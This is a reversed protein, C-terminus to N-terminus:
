HQEPFLLFARTLPALELIDGFIDSNRGPADWGMMEASVLCRGQALADLGFRIWRLSNDFLPEALVEHPYKRNAKVTRTAFLDPDKLSGGWAIVRTAAPNRSLHIYASNVPSGSFYELAWATYLPLQLDKWRLEDHKSQGAGHGVVPELEPSLLHLSVRERPPPLVELHNMYCSKVSGTKYDIVRYEFGDGRPRRDIRDIRFHLPHGDLTWNVEYELMPHGQADTACEWGEEWLQVQVRAFGRLRRRMAAHQFQRPLLEPSGHRAECSELFAADLEEEVRAILEERRLQPAAPSFSAYGPYRRAFLELAAHLHTGIDNAALDREAHHINTDRMNNLKQLWFRLPCALFQRLTSPSVAKGEMPNRLGLETLSLAALRGIDGKCAPLALRRYEWGSSDRPLQQTAPCPISRDFFHAVLAPLKEQPTLRFFVSSPFLPDRRANLLTFLAQVDGPQRCVYLSRLLYADRAARSEDRPLGLLDIVQPTLYPSAPWREPIIGDHLGALVLCPEPAYTLELWGRLSLAGAPHPAKAPGGGSALLHLTSLVSLEGVWPCARLQRCAEDVQATFQASLAYAEELGAPAGEVPQMAALEALADLLAPSSSLAASLWNGLQGLDARLEAGALRKMNGLTAPLSQRMLRDADRAARAAGELLLGETVVPNRLLDSVGEAPLRDTEAASRGTQELLETMRILALLLRNWGSATFPVGRPRVARMGHRAFAEAVASEMGPDCVGVAVPATARGAALASEEAMREPDGCVLFDRRWEPRDLGLVDESPIALWSATPRGWVDFWDPGEHLADTHLWVEVEHRSQALLRATRESLSPICALIIRTGDPLPPLPAEEPALLGHRHLEDLYLRYLAFLERWLPNEAALRQAAASSGDAPISEHCLTDCLQRFQGARALFDSESRSGGQPALQPFDSAERRLVSCLAAQQLRPTAVGESAGAALEGASIIPPCIFAGERGGSAAEVALQGRLQRVADRTPVVVLLPHEPDTCDMQRLRRAVLTCAPASFGLLCTGPLNM